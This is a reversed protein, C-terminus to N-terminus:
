SEGGAAKGPLALGCTTKFRLMANVIPLVFAVLHWVNVPLLPQLLQVQTEAVALVLTILNIWLTWSYRWRKIRAGVVRVQPVSASM